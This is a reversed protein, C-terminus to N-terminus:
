MFIPAHSFACKLLFIWVASLPKQMQVRWKLDGNRWSFASNGLLSPRKGEEMINKLIKISKQKRDTMEPIDAAKMYYFVSDRSQRSYHLHCAYSYYLRQQGNLSLYDKKSLLQQYIEEAKETNHAYCHMSALALKVKLCGSLTQCGGWVAWHIEESDDKMLFVKWKFLNAVRAVLTKGKITVYAFCYKPGGKM